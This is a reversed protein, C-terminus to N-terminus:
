SAKQMTNVKLRTHGMMRVRWASVQIYPPIALAKWGYFPRFDMVYWYKRRLMFIKAKTTSLKDRCLTKKSNWFNSKRRVM